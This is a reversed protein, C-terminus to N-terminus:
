HDEMAQALMERMVARLTTIAAELKHKHHQASNLLRQVDALEAEMKDIEMSITSVAYAQDSIM